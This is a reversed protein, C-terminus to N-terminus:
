VRRVALSLVRNYPLVVCCRVLSETSPWLIPTLLPNPTQWHREILRHLM